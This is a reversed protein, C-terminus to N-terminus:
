QDKIANSKDPHPEPQQLLLKDYIYLNTVETPYRSSGLKSLDSSM